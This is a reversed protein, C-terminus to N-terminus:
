MEKATSEECLSAVDLAAATRRLSLPLTTDRFPMSKCQDSLAMAMSALSRSLHTSSTISPKLYITISSSNPKIDLQM